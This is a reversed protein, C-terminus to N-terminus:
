SAAKKAAKAARAKALNAVLAAKQAPSLKKRAQKKRAHFAAWRKKQAEAIRKRAAASMERHGGTKQGAPAAAGSGRAHGGMQARLAAIKEEIQRHQVMYGALAAELLSRDISM